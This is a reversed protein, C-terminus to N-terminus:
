KNTKMTFYYVIDQLSQKLNLRKFGIPVRTTIWHHLDKLWAITSMKPEVLFHERLGYSGNIEYFVVQSHDDSMTADITVANLGEPLKASIRALLDPDEVLTAGFRFKGLDEGTPGLVLIPGYVFEGSRPNRHLEFRVQHDLRVLSQIVVDYARKFGIPLGNKHEEVHLGGFTNKNPKVVVPEKIEHDLHTDKPLFEMLKPKFEELSPESLLEFKGIFRPERANVCALCSVVMLITGTVILGIVVLLLM